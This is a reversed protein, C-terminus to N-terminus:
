KVKEQSDDLIIKEYGFATAVEDGYRRAIDACGLDDTKRLSDYFRLRKLDGHEKAIKIIPCECCINTTTGVKLAKCIPAQTMSLYIRGTELNKYAM